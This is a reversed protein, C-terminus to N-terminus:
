ELCSADFVGGKYIVVPFGIGPATTTITSVTLNGEGSPNITSYGWTFRINEWKGSDVNTKIIWKENWNYLTDESLITVPGIYHDLQTIKENTQNDIFFWLGGSRNVHVGRSELKSRLSKDLSILEKRLNWERYGELRIRHGNKDSEAIKVNADEINTKSKISNNIKFDYSTEDTRNIMFHILEDTLEFWEGEKRIHKFMRHIETEYDMAVNEVVTYLVLKHPHGRQIEALRSEPNGSNGIKVAKSKVSGMFYVNTSEM